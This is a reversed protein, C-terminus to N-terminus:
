KDDPTHDFFENKALSDGLVELTRFGVVQGATSGPVGTSDRCLHGGTM